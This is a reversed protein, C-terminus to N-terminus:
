YYQVGWPQHISGWEDADDIWSLDTDGESEQKEKERKGEDTHTKIHKGPGATGCRDVVSEGSQVQWWGVGQVATGRKSTLEEISGCDGVHAPRITHTTYSINRKLQEQKDNWVWQECIMRCRTQGISKGNYGMYSWRTFLWLLSDEYFVHPHM